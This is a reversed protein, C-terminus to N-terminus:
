QATYGGDVVFVQGAAFSAADSGSVDGSEGISGSTGPGQADARQFSQDYRAAPSEDGPYYLDRGVCVVRQHAARNDRNCQSPFKEPNLLM